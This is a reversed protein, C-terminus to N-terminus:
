STYMVAYVYFELPRNAPYSKRITSNGVNGSWVPLPFDLVTASLQRLVANASGYKIITASRSRVSNETTKNSRFIATLQLLQLRTALM